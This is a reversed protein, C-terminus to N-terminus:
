LAMCGAETGALKTKRLKVEHFELFQPRRAMKSSQLKAECFELLM